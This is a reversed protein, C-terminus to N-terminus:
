DEEIEIKGDEDTTRYVHYNVFNLFPRGLSTAVRAPVGLTPGM